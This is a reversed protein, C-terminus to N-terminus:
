NASPGLMVEIEGGGHTLDIIADRVPQGQFRISQILYKPPLGSLTLFNPEPSPYRFTYIGDGNKDSFVMPATPNITPRLFLRLQATDICGNGKVRGTVVLPPKITLPVNGVNEAKM